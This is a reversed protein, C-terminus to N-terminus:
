GTARVSLGDSRNTGSATRVQPRRARPPRRTLRKLVAVFPDSAEVHRARLRQTGRVRGNKVFRTSRTAACSPRAPARRPGSVSLPAERAGLPVARLVNTRDPQREGRSRQVSVV